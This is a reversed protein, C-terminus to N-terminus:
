RFSVLPIVLGDKVRQIRRSYIEPFTLLVSQQPRKGLRQEEWDGFKFHVQHRDKWRLFYRPALMQFHHDRMEDNTVALTGPGSYLAAHMWFWDDNMGPPTRYLVDTDLWSRLLPEVSSPMLKHGFHRSHIVMLVSKNQRRFHQIVWDIRSYDVHKPAGAFNQEYYGVNAGDIVVDIKRRRQRADLYNQFASWHRRREELTKNGLQQKPGKKGGQYQSTDNALKGSTVITENMRIMTKWSAASLAIPQLREGQLCGSQLLGTSKDIAVCESITWGHGACQVPGMNAAPEAYPLHIDSLIQTIVDQDDVKPSTSRKQMSETAFPSNFWSCIARRTEKCPVLVEEALDSLVREMVSANGVSAACKILSEYEKESLLLDLRALRQWVKLAEVLKGMECYATLLSAYLRLKPKCQQVKEAQYLLKEAQEVNGTKSYLKVLASYATETLPLKLHDMQSKIREAYQVRTEVDVVEVSKLEEQETEKTLDQPPKPTGIHLGRNGLGDCLNLLNYFSQAEITTGNSIAADYAQIARALDNTACCQHITTRFQLLAPDLNKKKKRTRAAKGPPTPQDSTVSAVSTHSRKTGSSPAPSPKSMKERATDRQSLLFRFVIDDRKSFIDPRRVSGVGEMAARGAHKVAALFICARVYTHNRQASVSMAMTETVGRVKESKLTIDESIERVFLKFKPAGKVIWRDVCRSALNERSNSGTANNSVM